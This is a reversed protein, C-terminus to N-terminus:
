GFPDTAAAIRSSADSLVVEGHGVGAVQAGTQALKGLAARARVRDVNFVGLIVQGHFEAVADGTLVADAQPLHVAISGPTHGPIDLVRTGGAFDLVDGDGVARDVRCAPGHSPETFEEPHITREGATLVPLPGRETGEICAVDGAGAVVEVDAWGAIEAASGTHDEHFHTLVLRTVDERRRDLASLADAILGACDPWGSDVVTVGDDGLWLYVNLLHVRTDPIRLRFLSPAMELLDPAPM